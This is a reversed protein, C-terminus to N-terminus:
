KLSAGAQDGCALNVLTDIFDIDVNGFSWPRMSGCEWAGV